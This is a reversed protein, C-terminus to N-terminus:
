PIGPLVTEDEAQRAIAAMERATVYYYKLQPNLDAFEKLDSHFRAMPDGLFMEMNSEQAGHTHLKVFLWDERGAVCVGSQCWRGFRDLSPPCRGTLDGNELRPLLGWKPRSWDWALPGQIMLLGDVPPKRGRAARIGRDHSKPSNPDDIAYYISNITRTQCPDPASPMTFDAYCGTERLVTIEDNVGCWKGDPRSNDLAWNGHIFGYTLQGSADKELLGHVDHLRATRKSLLDRLQQSSQGDHHLHVEVDGFGQRCLQAIQSVHRDDYEEDEVPYFFTHQPCRGTADAFREAMRPFECVWRAVRQEEVERAPRRWAPEYHDCVCLFVHVPRDFRVPRGRLLGLASAWPLGRVRMISPM